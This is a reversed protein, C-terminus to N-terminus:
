GTLDSLMKTGDGFKDTPCGARALMGMLLDCFNGKCNKVYRGSAITGGGRGALLTPLNSHDHRDGDGMGSGYLIMSNDLLTGKGESLSKMKQLMYSLQEVHFTNIKRIRELKVPDKGHHSCEHHNEPVGCEPYSRGFAQSFMLTAIRTTDSQFALTILDLMLKAHEDFKSPISGPTKVDIIPSSKFDKKADKSKAQEEAQREIAQIRKELERVGDLYEDMKRQDNGSVKARLGKANELVLDLMSQDLSPGESETGGKSEFQKADVSPGAGKKTTKGKRSQFMRDFVARPNLEKPMPQTPSRWSINAHYACSYGKDCNGASRGEQLGMELSPLVTYIGIKQAAIQDASIANEITDRKSAYGTLWTATERAHHADGDGDMQHHNLGGLILVDNIVPRLPELISPLTTNQGAKGDAPWFHDNNVGHPVYIFAMRVPPKYGGAAPTEAWGMTELLPLALTAGLGKLATRRSILWSRSM